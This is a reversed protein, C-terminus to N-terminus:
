GHHYRYPGIRTMLAAALLTALLGIATYRSRLGLIAILNLSIAPMLIAGSGIGCLPLGM